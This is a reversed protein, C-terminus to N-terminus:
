EREIKTVFWCSYALLYEKEKPFSSCSKDHLFAKKCGGLSGYGHETDMVLLVPVQETKTAQYTFEM